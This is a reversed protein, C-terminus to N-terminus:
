PSRVEVGPQELVAASNRNATIVPLESNLATAGIAGDGFLGPSNPKIAAIMGRINIRANVDMVDDIVPL